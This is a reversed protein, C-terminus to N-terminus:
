NTTLLERSKSIMIEPFEIVNVWNITRYDDLKSWWKQNVPLLHGPITM